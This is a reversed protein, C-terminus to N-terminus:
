ALLATKADAAAVLGVQTAFMALELHSHVGVKDFINSLHHRFTFESM